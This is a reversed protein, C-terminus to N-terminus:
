KALSKVENYNIINILIRASDNASIFHVEHFQVATKFAM